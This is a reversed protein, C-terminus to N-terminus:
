QLLCNSFYQMLHSPFYCPRLTNKELLVFLKKKFVASSFSENFLLINVVHSLCSLFRLTINKLLNTPPPHGKWLLLYSSMFSNPQYYTSQQPPSDSFERRIAKCKLIKRNNLIIRLFTYWIDIRLGTLEWWLFAIHPWWRPWVISFQLCGLFEECMGWYDKPVKGEELTVM